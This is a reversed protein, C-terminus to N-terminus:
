VFCLEWEGTKFNVLLRTDKLIDRGILIDHPKALNPWIACDIKTDIGKPYHFICTFAPIRETKGDPHTIGIDTNPKANISNIFHQALCSRGAGTDILALVRDIRSIAPTQTVFTVGIEMTPGFSRMDAPDHAVKICRAPDIM